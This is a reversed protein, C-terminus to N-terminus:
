SRRRPHCGRGPAGARLRVQPIGAPRRDVEGVEQVLGIGPQRVIGLPDIGDHVVQTSMPRGVHEQKGQCVWAPLEDKLGFVGGIQVQDLRPPLDQARQRQSASTKFGPAFQALGNALSRSVPIGMPMRENPTAPSAVLRTPRATDAQHGLDCLSAPHV